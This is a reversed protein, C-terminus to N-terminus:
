PSAVSFLTSEEVGLNKALLTWYEAYTRRTPPAGSIEADGCGGETLHAMVVIAGGSM